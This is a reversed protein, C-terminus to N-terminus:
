PLEEFDWDVVQLLPLDAEDEAYYNKLPVSPIDRVRMLLQYHWTNAKFTTLELRFLELFGANSLFPLGVLWGRTLDCYELAGTVGYQNRSAVAVVIFIDTDQVGPNGMLSNEADKQTGTNQEFFSVWIRGPLNGVPVFDINYQPLKEVVFNNILGFNQPVLDTGKLREVVEDLLQEYCNM